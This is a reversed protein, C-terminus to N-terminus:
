VVIETMLDVPWRAQDVGNGRTGVNYRLEVEGGPFQVIPKITLVDKGVAGSHRTEFFSPNFIIAGSNQKVIQMFRPMTYWM